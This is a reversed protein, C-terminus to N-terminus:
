GRCRGPCGRPTRRVVVGDLADRDRRGLGLLDLAALAALDQAADGQRELALEEAFPQVGSCGIPGHM